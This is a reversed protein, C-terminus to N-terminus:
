EHVTGDTRPGGGDFEDRGKTEDEMTGDTEMSEWAEEELEKGISVCGAGCIGIDSVCVAGCIGAAGAKTGVGISEEVLTWGMHVRALDPIVLRLGPKIAVM